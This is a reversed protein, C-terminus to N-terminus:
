PLLPQPLANGGCLRDNIYWSTTKYVYGTPVPTAMLGARVWPMLIAESQSSQLQNVANETDIGFVGNIALRTGLITNLIVQLKKVDTTNNVQNMRMYSTLTPVCIQGNSNVTPGTSAGLVGQGTPLGSGSGGSSFSTFGSTFGSGSSGGGNNSSGSDTTTANGSGEDTSTATSSAIVEEAFPTCDSDSLDILIDLDNDLGDTCMELTNEATPATSSATSTANGDGSDTSTATSTAILYFSACDPDSADSL